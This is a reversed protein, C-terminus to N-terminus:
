EFGESPIYDNFSPFQLSFRSLMSCRVASPRLISLILLLSAEKERQAYLCNNIQKDIQEWICLHNKVNM